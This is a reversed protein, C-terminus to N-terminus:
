WAEKCVDMRLHVVSAMEWEHTWGPFMSSSVDVMARKLSNLVQLHLTEIDTGMRMTMLPDFVTICNNEMSWAYCVWRHELLAPFFFQM